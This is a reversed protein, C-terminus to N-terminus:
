LLIFVVFVPDKHVVEKCSVVPLTEDSFALPKRNADSDIGDRNTM